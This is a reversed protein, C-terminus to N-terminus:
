PLYIAQENLGTRQLDTKPVLGVLSIEGEETVTNRNSPNELRQSIWSTGKATNRQRYRIIRFPFMATTTTMRRSPLRWPGIYKKRPIREM